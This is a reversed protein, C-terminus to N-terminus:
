HYARFVKYFPETLGSGMVSRDEEELAFRNADNRSISPTFGYTVLWVVFVTFAVLVLVSALWSLVSRKYAIYRM